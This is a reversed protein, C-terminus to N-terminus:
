LQKTNSMITQTINIFFLWVYPNYIKSKTASTSFLKEIYLAFFSFSLILWCMEIIIPVEWFSM